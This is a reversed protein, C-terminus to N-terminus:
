SLFADKTKKRFKAKKSVNLFEDSPYRMWGHSGKSAATVRRMSSRIKSANINQIAQNPGKVGGQIGLICINETGEVAETKM